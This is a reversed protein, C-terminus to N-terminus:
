PRMGPRNQFLNTDTGGAPAGANNVTAPGQGQPQGPAGAAPPTGGNAPPPLQKQQQGPQPAASGPGQGPQPPPLKGSAMQNTMAAQMKMDEEQQIRMVLANLEDKSDPLIESVDIGLLKASERLLKARGGIGIIQLDVPNNTNQLFEQTRMSLQEKALLSSSGRAVVKSDGKIDEDDSYLMNFYYLRDLVDGVIHDIHAIVEKIGRAASTMLMSLGSSTSGAGGVNTDGHAWRPVGTQDDAMAAFAEYVPMLPGVILEPQFFRIAPNDSMQKNTAEWIKWPYLHTSDTCREINVEVQPGSALGCNNVMARAIANCVDQLDSMLEPIGKGWWAGPVREYSDKSYPKRGLKDPNLICRIVYNSILWANVEYEL